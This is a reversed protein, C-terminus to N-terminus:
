VSSYNSSDSSRKLLTWSSFYQIFYTTVDMNEEIQVASVTVSAKIEPDDPSCKGLDIPNVPWEQEPLLLFQPGFVWNKNRLFTEVRLGRSAIDAPNIATNVYRWQSSRSVKLIESVRNAVFTRYRSVEKKIYKLVSTCLRSLGHM